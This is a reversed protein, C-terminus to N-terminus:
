CLGLMINLETGERNLVEAQMIPNCIVSSASPYSEYGVENRTPAGAMCAISVVEFGNKELIDVLIRAEDRLGVCFALGLKKYGMKKSFEILEKIRCWNYDGDKDRGDKLVDECARNIMKNEDGGMWGERITERRVDAYNEHPCFAPYDVNMEPNRCKYVGCKACMPTIDKSVKM